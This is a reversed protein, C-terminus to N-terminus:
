KSVDEFDLGIIFLNDDNFFLFLDFISPNPFNDWDKIGLEEALEDRFGEPISVCTPAKYFRETFDQRAEFIKEKIKIKEKNM